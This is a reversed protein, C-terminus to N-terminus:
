INSQKIEFIIKEKLKNKHIFWFKVGKIDKCYSISLFKKSSLLNNDVKKSIVGFKQIGNINFVCQRIKSNPKVKFKVKTRYKNEFYFLPYTEIYSIGSSSKIPHSYSDLLQQFQQNLRLYVNDNDGKVMKLYLLKGGIVNIFNPISKNKNFRDNRYRKAFKNEAAIYGYTKWIFLFNRINRIYAQSVNVKTSVMLGTVEQRSGRKQLRTKSENLQFGQSNIIRKLELRFESGEHYVNHMSSFTIDDAYRSYTLNFRRALGFLKRDLAQCVINSLIPSTPAGQPLVYSVYKTENENRRICCLGSILHSIAYSFNLPPQCLSKEVMHRTISSFFDKIDVNFIYNKNIHLRANTVISKGDCFGMVYEAPQYISKLVLNIQKLLMMYGKDRPTSIERVSGNRKKIYFQIYRNYNNDPNAYYHIFKPTFPRFKDIGSHQQLVELKQHNLLTVFDEETRTNAVFLRIIETNMNFFAESVLHNYKTILWM